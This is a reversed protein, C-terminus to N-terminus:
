EAVKPRLHGLLPILLTVRIRWYTAFWPLNLSSQTRM